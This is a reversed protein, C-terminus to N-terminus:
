AEERDNGEEKKEKVVQRARGFALRNPPVDDTITSGAAIFAGRGIRIPAVLSANSGIFAGEEIVTKNKRVGDYNCTVTGAGVNTGEGVNADGIYALHGAKVGRGLRAAKVEVFNGVRAEPGVDAGPRLHAYPGISCGRRVRAGELVSYRVTSNEEVTSDEILSDPGITCERGIRTAGRLHVGPLLVTGAEVLVDEGVYTREPDVILVGGELLSDITRRRAIAEIKPLDRPESLRLADDSPLFPVAEVKGGVAEYREAVAEFRFAPGKLAVTVADIFPDGGFALFLSAETWLLIGESPDFRDVFAGVSGPTLLPLDGAAGLVTRGRITPEIEGKEPDLAEVSVEKGAARVWPIDTLLLVREIGAGRIARLTREFASVGLVPSSFAEVRGFAFVFAVVDRSKM